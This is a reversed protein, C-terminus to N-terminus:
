LDCASGESVGFQDIQVHCLWVSLSIGARRWLETFMVRLFKNLYSWFNFRTDFNVPEGRHPLHFNVRVQGLPLCGSFM